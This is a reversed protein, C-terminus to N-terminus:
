GPLRRQKIEELEARLRDRDLLLTDLLQEYQELVKTPDFSKHGGATLEAGRARQRGVRRACQAVHQETKALHDEIM